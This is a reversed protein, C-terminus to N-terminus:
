RLSASTIKGDPLVESAGGPGDLNMLNRLAVRMRSRPLAFHRGGGRCLRAAPGPLRTNANQQFGAARMSMEFGGYFGKGAQEKAICESALSFRVSSGLPGAWIECKRWRVLSNRNSSDPQEKTTGAALLADLEV